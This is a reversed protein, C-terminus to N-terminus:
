DKKVNPDVYFTKVNKKNIKILIKLPVSINRLDLM